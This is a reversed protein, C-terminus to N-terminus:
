DAVKDTPFRINDRLLFNMPMNLNAGKPPVPKRFWKDYLKTVEGDNMLRAVERDVLSKFAADDKRLMIAYPETSLADGVVVFKTPDKASARQGYLLVDDVTFADAKGSEVMSFSENHDSGELLTLDLGRVKDRDNLLKVTTTGKSTVVKKGKLDTWNKIGSDTRVLMKATAFFHPITFAVQKRREANNTTSGCEMDAKGEVIAPIRTSGTVLVYKVNLQPLKLEKKIADVVKLCIDMSYGIPKKDENLYSFPFSAERHAITVTQTEKIHSLTDAALSLPSCLVLACPLGAKVIWKSAEM